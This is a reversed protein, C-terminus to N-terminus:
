AKVELVTIHDNSYLDMEGAIGLASKCVDAAAMDTHVLVTVPHRDVTTSEPTTHHIAHPIM